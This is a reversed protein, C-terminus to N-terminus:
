YIQVWSRKQVGQAASRRRYLLEKETFDSLPQIDRSRTLNAAVGAVVLLHQPALRAADNHIIETGLEFFQTMHLMNEKGSACM